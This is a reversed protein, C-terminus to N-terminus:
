KEKIPNLIAEIQGRTAGAKRAVQCLGNIHKRRHSLRQRTDDHVFPLFTRDQLLAEDEMVLGVLRRIDDLLYEPYSSM